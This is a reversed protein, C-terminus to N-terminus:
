RFAVEAMDSSVWTIGTNNKLDQETVQEPIYPEKNGGLYLVKYEAETVPPEQWIGDGAAAM